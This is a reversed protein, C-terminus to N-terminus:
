CTQCDRAAFVEGRFLGTLNTTNVESEFITLDPHFSPFVTVFQLVLAAVLGIDIGGLKM